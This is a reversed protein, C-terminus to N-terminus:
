VSYLILRIIWESLPPRYVSEGAESEGDIQTDAYVMEALSRYVFPFFPFSFSNEKYVLVASSTKELWVVGECYNV